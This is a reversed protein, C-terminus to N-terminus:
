CSLANPPSPSHFHTQWAPLQKRIDDQHDCGRDAESVMGASRNGSRGGVVNGEMEGGDGGRKEADRSNVAVYM